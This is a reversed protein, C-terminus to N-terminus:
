VRMSSKPRVLRAAVSVPRPIGIARERDRELEMELEPRSILAAGASSTRPRHRALTKAPETEKVAVLKGTNLATSVSTKKTLAGGLAGIL